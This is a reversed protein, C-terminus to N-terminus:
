SFTFCFLFVVVVVVHKLGLRTSQRSSFREDLPQRVFLFSPPFLFCVSGDMLCVSRKSCNWIISAGLEFPISLLMSRSCTERKKHLFTLLFFFCTLLMEVLVRHVSM